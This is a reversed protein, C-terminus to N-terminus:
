VRQPAPGSDVVIQSGLQGGPLIILKGFDPNIAVYGQELLLKCHGLMAKHEKAFSVPEVKMYKYLEKKENEYDPREGLNIKLSKIFSPNAGDIMVKEVSHKVLLDWAKQLMENFDPRKYEEAHLIQLQGDVFQVVIIGFSSSGYAPDIGMCQQSYTNPITPDYLKGKEIAADIDKTHFVNGIGGLYRLNYEREFFPSVKAKEIEVKTYIKDLGYTYDMLIRKYICTEESEKEIRDFLGDPAYPTSVM